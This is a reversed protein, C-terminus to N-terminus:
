HGDAAIQAQELADRIESVTLQMDLGLAMSFAQVASQQINILDLDRSDFQNKTAESLKMANAVYQCIKLVGDKSTKPPLANYHVYKCPKESYVAQETAGYHNLLEAVCVNVVDEMCSRRTPDKRREQAAM